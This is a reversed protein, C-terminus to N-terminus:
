GKPKEPRAKLASNIKVNLKADYPALERAKKFREAAKADNGAALYSVGLHYQILAFNPLKAAADELLSIAATYEGRQYAVWGLTDKFQPVDSNTLVAALSNAQTLSAQDTRHDALLSALNNAVIMSEPQDKLMSEYESIASEYEGKAELLGAESLRLDFSKPQQQLGSRVISLAEDIKRQRIYLNALARYGSVDTPQQKIATQFSKTARDLDNKALQVSGLLVFAEASAPNAKLVDQLFSEAKDPQKARLYTSVIAAMPQVAGPNAEFSNQLAALGEDFNKEGVFAFGNIQDAVDGKGGLRRITEAVAHAAAWDQHALKAQALASLVPISTPNRGALDGLVNDAREGLGRRRLFAVYNLGYV